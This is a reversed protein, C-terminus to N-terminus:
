GQKTVQYLLPVSNWGFQVNEVNQSWGGSVNQYWLPIAPLDKFLVQQAQELIKNADAVSGAASAKSLLDDFEKSSYDGDNSGAGTGYLPALFNFMSPYDAQWGSRFAGKITRGTIDTRLSKFDPYPNGEADIGLTNKIQNCVAEVWAKHPGDSNYGITFTGSWKSIKDAEAWLEKAKTPNYSLVENGPISDNYGDIVPSTFDKAPTRTDHFVKDTIEERNIAYSLAERRLQGEKGEFHALKQPITFSQFIAAPQNVARDGLDEKFTPIASDPLQDLVDLNGSLLDQYAADLQAYFIIDVGGNQAKRDGQYDPNPVLSIKVNHEWATDSALKYPGNGVPKEGGADRDKLTSDPLPYFASYGLRSPFDSEPQKLKVTFTSDDVVTLGTLDGTGEDDAGVIPAFFYASLDANKAGAKWADVFNSAKVTTGDTFKQGPKLKITWTTNDDSTISEAMENHTAGKADYYVLGAFVLDLIKGGGVENTNTPILPNQPESGNVTVIGTSAAASTEGSAAGSEGSASGGSSCATLALALVAPVALWSRKLNM